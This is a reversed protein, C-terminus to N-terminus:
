RLVEVIASRKEGGGTGDDFSEYVGIVAIQGSPGSVLTIVGFPEIDYVCEICPGDDDLVGFLDIEHRSMTAFSYIEVGIGNPPGIMGPALSYWDLILQSTATSGQVG